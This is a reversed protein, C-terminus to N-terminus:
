LNKTERFREIIQEPSPTGTTGIQQITISSALVGLQAAESPSAGTCLASVVAASVSDGAGVIDIPTPVEIGPIHTLNEDNAVLIGNPGQTIFVPKGTQQTFARACRQLDREGTAQIAEDRNPKLIVNKFDTIRTRSDAFFITEPHTKALHALEATVRNTLVGCNPEQVQDLAIVGDVQPLIHHLTRILQTELDAPLPDRNKIDLREMEAGTKKNLPKTYTPTFRTPTEILNTTDVGTEQLGKKLDYGQGDDGIIGLAQVKGIGLACLNSTVTGAAGPQNRIHTIQRAELNTELSTEALNPDITLYRDLFYDGIVLITLTPFKNLLTHLDPKTM